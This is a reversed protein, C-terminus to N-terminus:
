VRVPGGNSSRRRKRPSLSRPRRPGARPGNRGGGVGPCPISRPKRDPLVERVLCQRVPPFRRQTDFFKRLLSGIWEESSNWMGQLEGEVDHLQEGEYKRNRWIRSVRATSSELGTAERAGKAVWPGRYGPVYAFPLVIFILLPEHMNSPWSPNGTDLTIVVDADKSLQKRWLHTMLRPVCFVHPIHPNVLRDESFLEVATEMAAPAPLWLRPEENRYLLFWDRPTLLKLESGFWPKGDDMSWWSRIWNEVGQGAREQTGQSLPVFRMPDAGRKMMGELLDGRSLGDIGAAKMRTGSVHIVHLLCGTRREVQRVRLVLDNLKRSNSHGKYFTGEFVANDTFVFIEAERLGDARELDELRIILNSAERFNSSEDQYSTTFHGSEWCLRGGAWVATGFGKGSADGILYLVDVQHKPRANVKPPVTGETLVKLARADDNLRPVGTVLEPADTARSDEPPELDADYWKEQEWNWSWNGEKHIAKPKKRRYGETDRDERWSDITLHIGKLYPVMWRYTRSVYTLYGRIRELAKRNMTPSSAKEHLERVVMQTKEWKKESVLLTVESGDTHVVSGAWPGPTVSPETRKRAADQIGLKAMIKALEAAAKWCAVKCWGTVKGDDVYVYVECSLHGDYRVKFVWPLTPDYSWSGPLNLIIEEWHFPNDRDQHNGYAIHKAIIMLQISRYPSDRLGMFNRTWHEWLRQGLAALGLPTLDVGSYPQLVEGLNFNLFMEAVDIDAQHYGPLLSRLAHRIVPLSFHPSFLCDNLGCSTGNYVMRIDNDGKPVYFYHTLSKVPGPAIYGKGRVRGIKEVVLARDRNTSPKKQPKHFRPLDKVL